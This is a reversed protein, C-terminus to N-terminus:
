VHVAGVVGTSRQRRCCPEVAGIAVVVILRPREVARPRVPRVARRIRVQKLHIQVLFGGRSPASIRSGTARQAIFAVVQGVQAIDPGMAIMHVESARGAMIRVANNASVRTCVPCHHIKVLSNHRRSRGIVAVIVISRALFATVESAMALAM